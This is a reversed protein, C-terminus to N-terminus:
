SSGGDGAGALLAPALGRGGRASGCVGRAHRDM